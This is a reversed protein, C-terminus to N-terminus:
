RTWRPTKVLLEPLRRPCEVGTTWSSLFSSYVPDFFERGTEIHEMLWAASDPEIENLEIVGAASEAFGSM